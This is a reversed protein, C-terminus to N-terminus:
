NPANQFAQGVIAALKSVLYPKPLYNRGDVLELDSSFLETSYGSTYIVKLDPKDALLKRSLQLGNHEGPMVMDTLLLQVEDRIEPWKAIAADGSEAEFVRYDYTELMEKVLSRVAADDEVVFVTQNRGAATQSPVTPVADIHERTIPFYVRFTSGEGLATIVHVWGEHQRMIGYVTALGMGTGKNVEKTTFFPEFIRARTAADMGVGTDRVTLCVYEQAKADPPWEVADTDPRCLATLLTIAGGRPMADRANLVLNMVVQEVSTQDAFISPLDAGFDCQLAVREGMIRALM